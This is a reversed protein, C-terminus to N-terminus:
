LNEKEVDPSGGGANKTDWMKMNVHLDRFLLNLVEPEAGFLM